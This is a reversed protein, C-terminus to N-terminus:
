KIKEKNKLIQKVHDIWIKLPFTTQPVQKNSSELTRQWLNRWHSNNAKLWNAACSFPHLLSVPSYSINYEENKYLFPPERMDSYRQFSFYILNICSLERQLEKLCPINSLFLLLSLIRMTFMEYLWLPLLSLSGGQSVQQM